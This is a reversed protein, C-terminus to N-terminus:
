DHCLYRFWLSHMYDLYASLAICRARVSRLCLSIDEVCLTSRYSHTWKGCWALCQHKFASVVRGAWNESDRHPGCIMLATLIHHYPEFQLMFCFKINQQYYTKSCYSSRALYIQTLSSAASIVYKLSSTLWIQFSTNFVKLILIDYIGELM